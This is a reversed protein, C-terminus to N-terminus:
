FKMSIPESFTYTVWSNDKKKEPSPLENNFNMNKLLNSREASRNDSIIIYQVNQKPPYHIEKLFAQLELTDHFFRRHYQEQRFDTTVSDLTQCRNLYQYESYNEILAAHSTIFFYPVPNSNLANNYHVSKNAINIDNVQRSLTSLGQTSYLSHPLTYVSFNWIFLILPLTSISGLFGSFQSKSHSSFVIAILFPIIVMFELNGVSYLAFLWTTLLAFIPGLGYENKHYILQQKFRQILVENYFARTWTAAWIWNRQKKNTNSHSNRSQFIGVGGVVVILILGMWIPWTHLLQYKIEGHIQVFIRFTNILGFVLNKWNPTTQVLGSQVDQFFLNSISRNYIKSAILYGGFVLLIFLLFAMWQQRKISYNFFTKASNKHPNLLLPACILLYTQHFGVALVYLLVAFFPLKRIQFYWGLLTFFIPFIYTENETSYRIFVFSSAVLLIWNIRAIEAVSNQLLIRNLVALSLAGFVANLWVGTLLIDPQFGMSNLTKYCSYILYKHLIHHGSILDGKLMECAYGYSDGTFELPLLLLKVALLGLILLTIKHKM